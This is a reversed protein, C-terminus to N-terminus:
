ALCELTVVWGLQAVGREYEHVVEDIRAVRLGAAEACRRVHAAGHAFHFNDRVAVDAGDSRYLTFVCAGGPRLANRMAATIRTLDGYFILVGSAVIVDFARAQGALFAGIEAQHLADYFNKERAAALMPASLDVGVLQAARERLFAGCAGTGCGLDLIALDRRDGVWRAFAEQVHRPGLFRDEERQADRDWTTAKTEYTQRVLEDPYKEPAPAAGLYALKLRAGCADAPDLRLCQEFCARAQDTEGRRLHEDGVADLAPVHEPQLELVRQFSALAAAFDQADRLAKGLNFHAQVFLPNRDIAHQYLEAAVANEGLRKMVIGLNNYPEAMGPSLTMARRYCEQARSLDGRLRHINGLNNQVFPSQPAAAAAKDTYRLARELDGREAYLAGLLYNGDVDHPDDRLIRRYLDEAGRADGSQHKHLAKKLLKNM